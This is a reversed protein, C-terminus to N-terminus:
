EDDDKVLGRVKTHLTQVTETDDGEWVEKRGIERKAMEWLYKAEDETLNLPPVRTTQTTKTNSM